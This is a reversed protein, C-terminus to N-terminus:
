LPIHSCFSGGKVAETVGEILERPLSVMNIRKSGIVAAPSRKSEKIGFEEEWELTQELTHHVHEQEEGQEEGEERLMGFDKAKGKRLRPPTSSPPDFRAALEEINELEEGDMEEVMEDIRQRYRAARAAKHQRMVRNIENVDIPEEYEEKRLANAGGERAQTSSLRRIQPLVGRSLVRPCPRMARAPRALPM